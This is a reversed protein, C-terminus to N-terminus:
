FLDKLPAASRSSNGILSAYKVRHGDTEYSKNGDIGCAQYITAFLNPVAVPRQVQDGNPGTDGYVRAGALGGGALVVSFGDSYHDRGRGANIAPTRGFEGAWIVLTEQLLDKEAL